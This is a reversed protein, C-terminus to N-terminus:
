MEINMMSVANPQEPAGESLKFINALGEVDLCMM